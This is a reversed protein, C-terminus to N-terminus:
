DKLKLGIDALQCIAVRQINVYILVLPQLVHNKRLLHGTYMLHCFFSNEDRLVQAFLKAQPNEIRDEHRKLHCQRLDFLGYRLYSLTVINADEIM